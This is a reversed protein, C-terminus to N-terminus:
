GCSCPWRRRGSGPPIGSSGPDGPQVGGRHHDAHDAQPRPPYLRRHEGRDGAHGAADAHAAAGADVSLQQRPVRLSQSSSFCPGVGRVSRDGHGAARHACIQRPEPEGKAQDGDTRRRRMEKGAAHYLFHNPNDIQLACFRRACGNPGCFRRACRSSIGPPPKQETSCSLSRDGTRM